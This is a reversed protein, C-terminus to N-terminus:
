RAPAEPQNLGAGRRGCMVEEEKAPLRKAPGGHGMGKEERLPELSMAVVTGQLPGGTGADIRSPTLRNM